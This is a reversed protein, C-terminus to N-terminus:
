SNLVRALAARAPTAWTAKGGRGGRQGALGVDLLMMSILVAWARARRETDADVSGYEDFFGSIAGDPLLMWASALDNARDGACMDGFDIVAVLNGQEVLINAPHLDAHVWVPPGEPGPAAAGADWVARLRDPDVEGGVAALLREFTKARSLLSASGRLANFPAGAPAPVHLARLFAALRTSADRVCLPSRDGPKGRLYPVVSWPWPFRAGPRGVRVLTPVPLPLAEAIGPLWRQENLTLAVAALRRPLRVIFAEGLRWLDNDWGADIRRLPLSALDPHQEALLEQV